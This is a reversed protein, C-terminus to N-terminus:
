MTLEVPAGPGVGLMAAASAQNACVELCGSSGEVIAVEGAPIRAYTEVVLNVQRLGVQMSFAANRLAPFDDPRFNTVLNGFHDVKLVVGTWFHKGTRVPEAGGSALRVWDEIVPGMLSPRIGRALHGAVPAFVDRGHFTRSVEARWYKRATLERVKAKESEPGSLVLSFVGNDPGVFRHGGGAEALIPRRRTGVGPDVVVVHVTGKPFYRYAQWITFAGELLDYRTVQHSIDVVTAEPALSLIVGKMAGVFHDTEGFDTTLTIVSPKRPM